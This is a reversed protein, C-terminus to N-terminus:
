LLSMKTQVIISQKRIAIYLKYNVFLIPPIFMVFIIVIYEQQSLISDNVFMVALAVKGVILISLLISLRGKSVSKQHFVPYSKALYQDVNMVLLALLSFGCFTNALRLAVFPWTFNIDFQGNSWFMAAALFPNNTLVALADCCSLVLIMLYCIKKRLRVSRWFSLIVLSNLCIEAFIFLINIGLVIIMNISHCSEM